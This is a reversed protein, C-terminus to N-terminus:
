FSYSIGALANFSQVPYGLWRQYKQFGFNNLQGFVSFKSTLQYNAKLNLDFATKLNNSKYTFDQKPELSVPFTPQVGSYEMILAKRQGILFIDTSVGLQETIQYNLNLNADWSPLNWAETQEDLNYNYYNVALLLNLKDSSAHFIEAHLKLRKMQDYLVAFTNDAILPAPNYMPDYYYAERIYYLPQDDTIAYDASLTFNTKNALKGDFGGYFRIKEFSNRVDHEPNVFPNEYAIKSYHNNIYNGDIGVFLNIIEEVPAWNARINPAIKAETDKDTEMVFWANLGIKLNAKENGIRWAPKAYLWTQGKSGITSDTELLIDGAHTYLVGADLLGSGTTLPQRYDIEFQGYHEKQGTKTGFYHYNFDFGFVQDDFDATPNDLGVNIGGKTFSQKTGFYNIDQNDRKLPEPIAKVPYGYYNFADHDLDLNVSLISNQLQHKVFLELDNYMFPADVKDGGELNIKGFSSLHRAHIGYVSNRNSLSNFFVEAYPKFYSGVGARVL